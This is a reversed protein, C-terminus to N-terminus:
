NNHFILRQLNEPKRENENHSRISFNHTINNKTTKKEDLGKVQDKENFLPLAFLRVWRKWRVAIQRFADHIPPQIGVRAQAISWTIGEDSIRQRSNGAVHGVIVAHIPFSSVPMAVIKPLEYRSLLGKHKPVTHFSCM